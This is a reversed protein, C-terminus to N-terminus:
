KADNVRYFDERRSGVAICKATVMSIYYYAPNPLNEMMWPLEDSYKVDSTAIMWVPEGELMMPSSEHYREDWGRGSKKAYDKAIEVAQGQTIM